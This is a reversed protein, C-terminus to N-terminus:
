AKAESLERVCRALLIGAYDAQEDLSFGDRDGRTRAWEEEFVDVVREHQPSCPKVFMGPRRLEPHLKGIRVACHCSDAFGAYEINFWLRDRPSQEPQSHLFRHLTM